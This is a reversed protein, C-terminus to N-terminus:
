SMCTRIVPGQLVHGHQIWHLVLKLRKDDAEKDNKNLGHDWDM